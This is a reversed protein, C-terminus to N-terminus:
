ALASVIDDTEIPRHVGFICSVEDTFIDCKLSIKVGTGEVRGRIVDVVKHTFHDVFKTSATPNGVKSVPDIRVHIWIM